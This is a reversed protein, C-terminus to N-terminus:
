FPTDIPLLFYKEIFSENVNVAAKEILGKKEISNRTEDNYNMGNVIVVTSALRVSFVYFYFSLCKGVM